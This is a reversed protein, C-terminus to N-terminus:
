ESTILVVTRKRRRQSISTVIRRTLPARSSVSLIESNDVTSEKLEIFLIFGMKLCFLFIKLATVLKVSGLRLEAFAASILTMRM